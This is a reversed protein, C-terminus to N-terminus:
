GLSIMKVRGLTPNAQVGVLTVGTCYIKTQSPILWQQPALGIIEGRSEGPDLEFWFIITQAPDDANCLFFRITTDTTNKLSYVSGGHNMTALHYPHALTGTAIQAATASFFQERCIKLGQFISSM